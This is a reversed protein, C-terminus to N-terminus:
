TTVCSWSDSIFKYKEYSHERALCVRHLCTNGYASKCFVDAGLNLINSLHQTSKYTCVYGLVTEFEETANVQEGCHLGDQTINHNNLESLYVKNNIWTTVDRRRLLKGVEDDNDVILAQLLKVEFQKETKISDLTTNKFGKYM